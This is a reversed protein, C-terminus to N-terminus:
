ANAWVPLRYVTGAYDILLYKQDACFAPTGSDAWASGATAFDASSFSGAGAIKLAPVDAPGTIVLQDESQDYTMNCGTTDGYFIVDYGTADVGVTVTGTFQSNGTIDMAGAIIVKDASEDWMFYKSATAGFFKVDHGTDDVGVTLTGTLQSNGTIDYDSTLILKDASEDWLFSKGETASYFKVDHGTGNIGVTLTGTHQASGTIDIDGALLVKDASEDWMFYKGSTAGFLKMDYGTDDVGLTFTGHQTVNLVNGSAGILYPTASAIGELEFSTGDFNMSVDEGTGFKLFDGDALVIEDLNLEELNMTGVTGDSKTYYLKDYPVQIGSKFYTGKGNM